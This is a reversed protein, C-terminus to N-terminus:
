PATARRFVRVGAGDFHGGRDSGLGTFVRVVVAAAPEVPAVAVQWTTAGELRSASRRTRSFGRGRRRPATWGRSPRVAHFDDRRQLAKGRRGAATCGNRSQTVAERRLRRMRATCGGARRYGPRLRHRAARFGNWARCSRPAARRCPRSRCAAARGPARGDAACAQQARAEARAQGLVDQLVQGRALAVRCPM